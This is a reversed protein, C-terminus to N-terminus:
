GPPGEVSCGGKQFVESLFDLFVGVKPVLQRNKPYLAHVPWAPPAYADLVTALKGDAIDDTILFDFLLVLGRGARAHM